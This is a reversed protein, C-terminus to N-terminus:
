DIEVVDCAFAELVTRLTETKDTPIKVVLVTHKRPEPISQPPPPTYKGELLSAAALELYRRAPEKGSLIQGLHGGSVGLMSAAHSIKHTRALERIASPEAVFGEPHTESVSWKREEKKSM